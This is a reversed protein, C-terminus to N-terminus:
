AATYVSKGAGVYSDYIHQFVEECKREYLISSYSSPLGSDLAEKVALRVQAVAQQKKRWDLVLLEHKLTELLDRVVKKVESKERETLAVDTKVLLDFMTLEEESLQEAVHRLEEENLARAFEVLEEFLTEVNKSGANYDDILRQFREQFSARGKNLRVMRTLKSHIAGRLKEVETHKYARAFHRSLADFDIQSLDLYSSTDYSGSSERIVYQRTAVSLDLLNEVEGMVGRIDAEPELLRIREALVVILAVPASFANASRDPLVAKFLRTVEGSLLLYKKKIEDNAVLADLAADLLRARTFDEAPAVQIVQLDVGQERCFAETEEIAKRLLTVLEGKERVPLDGERIGGGSASGYIALARQLDRFVGVYDVILGNLKDGFVRNARAITQMLTHNRMPKDLYLTSLSPVDFGTIWMACVFVIRLPDDDKKFRTELDEQLMRRRHTAIDLGKERFDDVENQSQSVVVAMDTTEMYDIRIQLAQWESSDHAYGRQQERLKELYFLWHAKVKNYTRVTTAKDISIVMAKGMKGGQGIQGRGMFHSVIDGAIAELRDDRTILHYERGFEREFRRQQAESLDAEELLQEVDENFHANVLQVEPIRNEYYLPVTTGDAVSQAFNYVSVYDGFVQRTREEGVKMLPTGTFGLFAANPLANRMNLALVDYQTRHAEDTMVIIDSRESLVPYTHGREVHFKHILTFINRHNERLLQQLHEGSQAQVELETVAGVGAFTKYIQEDLELRDTVILFTWNGPIKRLVKQSFFVMSYSKGSGQTHWFVGLRGQNERLSRVAALANNVGLYQHNKAILKILAGGAASFLTFNEVIDLLCGQECVGRIMTELSVVGPEDEDNVKKWEFFHEWGATISGIKSQHGNSLIIFANYWFLQPITDKYDRLNDHYAHELRKHSAKLEFLVLPLGNVFGVLDARRHYMEGAVKFQSVLLFDNREPHKWDIVQVVEDIEDGGEGGVGGTDGLGDESSVGRMKVKIGQKLLVYVERNAHVPSLASRDRALEEIALEIAERSVGANLRQLANRLRAVLVVEQFTERGLVSREGAQEHFANVTEYGLRAFLAIAPQEVLVDESYNYM